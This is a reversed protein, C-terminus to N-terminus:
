EEVAVGGLDGAIKEAMPHDVVGVADVADTADDLGFGVQARVIAGGM